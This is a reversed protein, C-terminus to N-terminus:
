GARVCVCMLIFPLIGPLVLFHVGHGRDGGSLGAPGDPGGASPIGPQGGM